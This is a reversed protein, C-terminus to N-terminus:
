RIAASESSSEVGRASPLVRLFAEVVAPDFKQGKQQDLYSRALLDGQLRDRAVYADVVAIIRSAVPLNNGQPLTPGDTGDYPAHHYRVIPAMERLSPVLELMAGSVETHKDYTAREADSWEGPTRDNVLKWPIACLGIDRLRAAHELSRMESPTLGLRQGVALSLAVVRDTLGMQGPFRLEVATSFVKLTSRQHEQFRHPLMAVVYYTMLASIIAIISLVIIAGPNM